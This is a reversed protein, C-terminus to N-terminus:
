SRPLGELSRGRRSSALFADCPMRSTLWPRPFGSVSPPRLRVSASSSDSRACGPPGGSCFSPLGLTSLSDSCRMTRPPRALRRRPSPASLCVYGASSVPVPCSPDSCGPLGGGSRTRPLRQLADRLLGLALRLIPNAVALPPAVLRQALVAPALDAVVGGVADILPARLCILLVQVRVAAVQHLSPLPLAVPGFPDSPLRDGLPSPLRRGHPIGATSSLSSCTATM